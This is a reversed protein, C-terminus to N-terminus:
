GEARMGAEEHWCRKCWLHTAAREDLTYDASAPLHRVVEREEENLERWTHLRGEGCRTCRENLSVNM